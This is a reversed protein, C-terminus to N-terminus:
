VLRWMPHVLLKGKARADLMAALEGCAKKKYSGTLKPRAENYKVKQM